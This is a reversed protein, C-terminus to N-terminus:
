DRSWSASYSMSPSAAAQTCHHGFSRWLESLRCQSCSKTAHLEALYCIQLNFGPQSTSGPNVIRLKVEHFGYLRTRVEFKESDRDEQEGVDSTPKFEQGPRESTCHDETTRDRTDTGEIITSICTCTCTCSDTQAHRESEFHCSQAGGGEDSSSSEGIRSKSKGEESTANVKGHWM